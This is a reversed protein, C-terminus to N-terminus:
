PAVQEWKIKRSFYMVLALTIFLGVSGVLLAYDQLQILTFVFGYQVALLLAILLSLRSSRLMSGVYWAILGITALSAIGYAANFGTYESFSLLLTYFLCLAIGALLYQMSHIPKECIWEILFFATFTLLIILIAYKVSRTTQQYSDVPVLLSVGFAAGDLDFIGQKWQQPFQRNLYLVKWNAVFGSDKVTRWDPLYSGAFSPNPWSSNAGVRTEKGTPVFLLNGSGKLRVTSSFELPGRKMALDVPMGASLANKFQETSFKAPVLSLDVGEDPKVGGSGSGRSNGNVGAFHIIVDEKLGQVDKVDFFVASEGWLIREAPINLEALHLSDYSGRIQLETTYVIVQYIGRYRKEPVIHAQIDLKGPLFYAWKKVEQAHGADTITETYPIGIVPGTVTQPGAWRSNIETVAQQQRDQRESVLNQIFVNPILFLLILFGIWLSKLIIKHRNWFTSLMNEM